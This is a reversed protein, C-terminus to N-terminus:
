AASGLDDLDADPLDAVREVGAKKMAAAVRDFREARAANRSAMERCRDALAVLEDYDFDGLAKYGSETAYRASLEARGFRERIAARKWSKASTPAPTPTTPRQQIIVDRVMHALAVELAAARSKAPVQGAVAAAVESVAVPGDHTALEDRIIQRLDM